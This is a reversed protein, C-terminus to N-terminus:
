YRIVILGIAGGWSGGGGGGGPFGGDTESKDWSTGNAQVIHRGRGGNNFFPASGGNGGKVVVSNSSYYHKEFLAGDQGQVGLVDTFGSYGVLKGGEGGSLSFNSGNSGNKVRVFAAGSRVVASDSGGGQPVRIDFQQGGAVDAYFHAYGGGGGGGGGHSSSSNSFSGNGGGSWMSVEIVEVGAPVTWSNWGTQNFVKQRTFCQGSQGNSISLPNNVWSSGNYQLLDGLTVSEVDVDPLASLPSPHIVRNAVMAYPVTLMQNISEMTYNSGGDLDIETRLFFIGGSWDIEAWSGSVATGGGIELVILGNENTGISHTEQYVVIGSITGELISVRMGIGSNVLVMGNADRVVAQYSMRDPVQASSGAFVLIAAAITLFRKM